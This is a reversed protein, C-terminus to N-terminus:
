ETEGRMDAGCHPCFDSFYFGQETEPTYEGCISCKGYDRENWKGKPRIPTVSPLAVMRARADAFADEVHRDRDYDYDELIDLADERSITDECPEQELAKIIEDQKGYPCWERIYDKAEEKTMEKEM